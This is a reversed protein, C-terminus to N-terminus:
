LRDIIISDNFELYEDILDQKSLCIQNNPKLYKLSELAYDKTYFGNMYQDITVIVRDDAVGGEIYHFLRWNEQGLRNGVVFDFWEEDYEPFIKAKDDLNALLEDRKLLYKNIIPQGNLVVARRLAWNVAQEYIDSIYFGPGFDLQPRSHYIDPKPIIDVGAHYVEIIASM